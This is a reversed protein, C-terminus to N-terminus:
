KLSQWPPKVYVAAVKYRNFGDDSEWRQGRKKVTKLYNWLGCDYAELSIDFEMNDELWQDYGIAIDTVDEKVGDQWSFRSVYIFNEEVAYWEIQHSIEIAKKIAEIPYMTKTCFKVEIKGASIETYDFDFGYYIHEGIEEYEDLSKVGFLKNFSIYPEELKRGQGLPYYDVFYEDLFEKDCIVKNWVFNAM